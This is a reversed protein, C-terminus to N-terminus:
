QAAWDLRDYQGAPHCDPDGEYIPRTITPYQSSASKVCDSACGGLSTKAAVVLAFIASPRM